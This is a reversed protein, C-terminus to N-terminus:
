NIFYTQNLGIKRAAENMKTIFDKLGLEYDDTKLDMAGIVSAVSHAGDNSSTVLSFDLLDKLRWSENAFLGSDGEAELFERRVKIHTEKPFLNEATLAMMLKTLSALPLQALENKQFLVKNKAIDFVYASKAEIFIKDFANSQVVKVPAIEGKLPEHSAGYIAFAMALIALLILVDLILLKKSIPQSEM